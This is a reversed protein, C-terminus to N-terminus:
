MINLLQLCMCIVWDLVLPGGNRQLQWVKTKEVFWNNWNHNSPTEEMGSSLSMRPRENIFCMLFGKPFFFHVIALNILFMAFSLLPNM